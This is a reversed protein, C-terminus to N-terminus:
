GRCSAARRAYHEFDSAFHGTRGLSCLPPVSLGATVYSMLEASCMQASGSNATRCADNCASACQIPPRGDEALIQSCQTLCEMYQLHVSAKSLCGDAEQVPLLDYYHQTSIEVAWRGAQVVELKLLEGDKGTKRLTTHINAEHAEYRPSQTRKAMAVGLVLKQLTVGRAPDVLM